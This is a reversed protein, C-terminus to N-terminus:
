PNGSPPQKPVWPHLLGIGMAFRVLEARSRVDLKHALRARYTEVSKIGIGLQAAIERHTHGEALLQLVQRERASLLQAGEERAGAAADPAGPSAGPRALSPDVFTRGARLARIAALLQSHPATKVLYGKAGAGLTARVFAPDDHMTLVLIQAAPVDRRLAAILQAADTGPLTLDLVVVDPTTRTVAAVATPGDTAEAVVSMDPQGALVLRLGHRLVAHDDVLVVRIKSM